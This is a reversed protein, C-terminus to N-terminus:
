PRGLYFAIALNKNDFLYISIPEIVEASNTEAEAGQM